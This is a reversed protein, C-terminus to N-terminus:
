RHLPGTPLALEPGSPLAVQPGLLELSREWLREADAPDLAYAAVGFGRPAPSVGPDILPPENCDAFYHGGIGQLQPSTAVLVSTAAGQESTKYEYGGKAMADALADPDMHRSLGTTAIAGPHVANAMIGEGGWRRTAEVAFLVNATKSQGYAVLPDYPRHAFFLDDFVVRSRLHAVSSLSVIRAGGAAALADHLGLALAFHGLHNTAFQAEWGEPTLQLEPLAMVGANNILIHLPVTWGAAFAAVSRQDALDLPRVHIATSATTAAIDAATREGAGVDRVALTVDAGAAALARATEIGIGSSGGTVIARRGSLDIGAVVEAATSDFGFPTQIRNPTTTHTM